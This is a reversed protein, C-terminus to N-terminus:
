RMLERVLIALICTAVFGVGWMAYHLDPVLDAPPIIQIVHM